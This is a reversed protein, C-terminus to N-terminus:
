LNLFNKFVKLGLDQSKEPHFQVGWVNDKHIASVFERGYDTTALVVDKDQVACYYSNAFYFYSGDKVGEFLKRGHCKVGSVKYKVKNWGMHPVLLGEGKFRQVNGKIVALGGVGEEEQSKELLLQMGVCIGLFSVGAKIRNQILKFLKRKKLEKVTKGFHGVGPLILKDAKNIVAASDSLCIRKGLFEGAKQVSALNGIGYNIIATM